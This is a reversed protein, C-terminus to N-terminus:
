NKWLRTGITPIKTNAPLKFTRCDYMELRSDDDLCFTVNTGRVKAVIVKVPQKTILHDAVMETYVENLNNKFEQREPILKVLLFVLIVICLLGWPFSEPPDEHRFDYDTM